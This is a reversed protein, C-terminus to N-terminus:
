FVPTTASVVVEEEGFRTKREGLIAHREEKLPEFFAGPNRAFADTRMNQSVGKGNAVQDITTIREAQLFQESVFIHRGDFDVHPHVVLGKVILLALEARTIM